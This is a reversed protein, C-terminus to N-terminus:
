PAPTAPRRRVAKIHLVRKGLEHLRADWASVQHKGPRLFLTCSRTTRSHVVCRDSAIADLSENTAKAEILCPFSRRCLRTSIRIATRQGALSLLSEAHVDRRIDAPVYVTWDFEPRAYLVGATNEIAFMTDAPGNAFRFTNPSAALLTTTSITLPDIGTAHKFRYAMAGGPVWFDKAEAIHSFGAIVVLKTDPNSKFLCALNDAQNQERQAITNGPVYTDYAVLEFGLRLAERVIEAYVPEQTYYGSRAIPYGRRQLGKDLMSADRCSDATRERADTSALTELALHTFGQARLPALLAFIAARSRVEGHSENFFVARHRRAAELIPRTAPVALDFGGDALDEPVARTNYNLRAEEYAGVFTALFTYYQLFASRDHGPPELGDDLAKRVAFYREATPRTSDAMLRQLTDVVEENRSVEPTNQAVANAAILVFAMCRRVFKQM